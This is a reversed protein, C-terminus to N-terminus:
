FSLFIVYFMVCLVRFIFCLPALSLPTGLERLREVDLVGGECRLRTGYLMFCVVHGRDIVVRGPNSGLASLM